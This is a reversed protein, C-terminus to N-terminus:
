GDNHRRRPTIDRQHDFVPDPHMGEHDSEPLVGAHLSGSKAHALVAPSIDRATPDPREIWVPQWQACRPDMVRRWIPPVLAIGAMVPLSFPLCPMKEEDLQLAPYPRSPTTHHDSHRPANLTMASTFWHPANWSHQPGVPELKGNALQHRRLGYHQVYDSMLIQLQAYLNIMVLASLGPIGFLLFAGILITSAGSVYLIYPHRWIAQGKRLHNEARLGAIFGASWARLAFGYFGQGLPASNPDASSGVNVHHVRLHASAHHGFLMSTYVLQGLLRLARGSKHILEHAVPHSIQGFFMSVAVAILGRETMSLASSGGVAWVCAPLLALHVIGLVILLRNNGPFEASPDANEIEEPALRDLSFALITVFGAALWAWYGGWLVAAFILATPSLTALAFLTM